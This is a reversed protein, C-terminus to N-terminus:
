AQLLLLWDTGGGSNTAPPTFTHTGTNPMATAITTYTGNTPDFWRAQTPGSMKAMNVTLTVNSPVYALGVTGDPTIAASTYGATVFTHAQDPVLNWWSLSSLLTKYYGVETVSTTSMMSQWGPGNWWVTSNGYFSGEGGNLISDYLYARLTPPNGTLAGKTNGEYVGEGMITPLPSTLDYGRLMDPSNIRSDYMWNIEVEAHTADHFTTWSPDDTSLDLNPSQSQYYVGDNLEITQLSNPLVARVANAMAVLYPDNAAQLSPWYDDGWDWAVNPYSKYRNAIWTAYAALKTTGQSAYFTPNDQYAATALPMLLVTMGDQEAVQIVNDIRAWYAPNPQTVDYNSPGTGLTVGDSEFFPVIGDFTSWNARGSEYPGGIAILPLTNFGQSARTSLYSAQDATSINFGIDWGSDGVMLFPQGHQDLLYHGNASMSTAFVSTVPWIRGPAVRPRPSHTQCATLLGLVLAVAGWM